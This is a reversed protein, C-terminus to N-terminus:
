FCKVVFNTMSCVDNQDCGGPLCEAYGGAALKCKEGLTPRKRCAGENCFAYGVCSDEQTCSSGVPLRPTCIGNTRDCYSTLSECATGAATCSEGDAVFVTPNPNTTVNTPKCTGTCCSVVEWGACAGSCTTGALCEFDGHCAGDAAVTAEFALSCDDWLTDFATQTCPLSSAEAACQAALDPQYTVTGTSIASALDVLTRGTSGLLAQACPLKKPYAGARVLFTCLSDLFGNLEASKTLAVPGEL